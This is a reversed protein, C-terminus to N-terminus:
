LGGIADPAARHGRRCVRDEILDDLRVVYAARDVVLEVGVDGVGDTDAEGSEDDVFVDLGPAVAGGGDDDSAVHSRGTRREDAAEAAAQELM